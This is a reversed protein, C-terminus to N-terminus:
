FKICYLLAINVPRTESDVRPVGFGSGTVEVSTGTVNGVLSSGTGSVGSGGSGTSSPVQSHRHEQYADQQKQGFTTASYTKGSITQSGSGRVFIGRLDPLTGAAGYTTSVAAHLAAFNATVGQVTGTGNPVVNGNAALWGSPASNAAFAMVAGAPLAIASPLTVTKSSLNLTAALKADTVNADLIKATTVEGDVLAATATPTATSTLKAATAVEGSTWQYGPTITVTAM